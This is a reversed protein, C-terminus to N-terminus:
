IGKYVIMNRKKILEVIHESGVEDLYREIPKHKPNTSSGTPPIASLRISSNFAKDVLYDYTSKFLMIEENEKKFDSKTFKLGKNPLIRQIVIPQPWILLKNIIGEYIEFLLNFNNCVESNKIGIALLGTGIIRSYLYYIIDRNETLHIIIQENNKAKCLMNAFIKEDHSDYGNGQDHHFSISSFLGRKYLFYFKM